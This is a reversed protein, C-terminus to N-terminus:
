IEVEEPLDGIIEADELDDGITSVDSVEVVNLEYNSDMSDDLLAETEVIGSDYEPRVEVVTEVIQEDDDEFASLTEDLVADRDMEPLDLPKEEKIPKEPEKRKMWDWLGM